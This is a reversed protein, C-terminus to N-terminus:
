AFAIFLYTSGNINLNSAPLQNVIFGSTHPDISDFSNSETISHLGIHPDIGSTIGRVTDFILWGRTPSGTKTKILVFRAGSSFGCNITQSTGNGTYSGVKSINSKTAFLYAVYETGPESGAYIDTGLNIVSASHTGNWPTGGTSTTVNMGQLNLYLVQTNALGSVWVSWNYAANRAKIIILEPTVGLGHQLDWPGTQGYFTVIDFVGVARKFNWYIADYGDSFISEVIGSNSNNAYGVQEIEADSTSAVLLQKAGRLRDFVSCTTTQNRPRMWTLDVTFGANVSSLGTTAQAVGTYVQTGTTPPKTQRRIALFTFTGSAGFNNTPILFGTSTPILCNAGADTEVGNTNAVLYAGISHSMGRVTDFMWWNGTSDTRKFLVFQPEWGMNAIAIGSGDTSFSGCQIISDPGTDHAFAEILYYGGNDLFGDVLTVTTGSVTIHGQTSAAATTEGILLQGATLDRHWVYWSGANDVRKVRVMGITGLSDFSANIDQAPNKIVITHGFFKAANRFTWSAYNTAVDNIFSSSGLSFGDSNFSSLGIGSAFAGWGATSNTSDFIGAGGFFQSITHFLYHDGPGYTGSAGKIWTLGGETSLDIGNVITQTAGNGTYLWTSFVDDAHLRDDVAGSAGMLIDRATM